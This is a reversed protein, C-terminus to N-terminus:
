VNGEFYKTLASESTCVLGKNHVISSAQEMLRLDCLGEEIMTELPKDQFLMALDNFVLNTISYASRTAISHKISELTTESSFKKISLIMNIWQIVKAADTSGSFHRYEITGFSCLPKINFGSYKLWHSAVAHVSPGGMSLSSILDWTAPYSYLPICFNNQDRDNGIFDYLVREFIMYTYVHAILQELNQDQMNVHVHVSTRASAVARQANLFEYISELGYTVADGRLALSVFEIGNNRLSGDGKTNWYHGLREPLTKKINELEIEIGIYTGPDVLTYKSKGKALQMGTGTVM